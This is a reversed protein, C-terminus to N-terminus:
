STGARNRCKRIIKASSSEKISWGSSRSRSRSMVSISCCRTGSAHTFCICCRTSRAASTFISVARSDTARGDLLTRGRRWRFARDNQPDCFRLYYWCSGAWQPMTNTERTAKESYRIWDKAKALPPEGTGTPKYDELPPPVVPLESEGLAAISAMRGFLRSRSAGTVSGRFFGTACNTISRASQGPRTGGAMRHNEEEGGASPLGNIIPSNVAIGDGTSDSDAPNEGRRPQVVISSDASRVKQAFELDREDHAPVRWSRAPATVSCCM